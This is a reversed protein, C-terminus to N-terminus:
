RAGQRTVEVVGTQGTVRVRDGTRILAFPDPALRHLLPIRALVAGAIVVADCQANIIAAPANGEHGLNLLWYSGSSSGQGSPFVLVKGAVSEGAWPHGPQKVVGSKPDVLSFSLNVSSVFADGEADGDVITTGQFRHTM